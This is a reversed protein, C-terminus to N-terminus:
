GESPSHLHQFLPGIEVMIVSLLILACGCLAPLDLREQLMMAGALAAFVSELSVILAAEAAPTHRQAVVQLTYAVGGSLVGAYDVGAVM